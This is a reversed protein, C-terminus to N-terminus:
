NSNANSATVALIKREVYGTFTNYAESEDDWGFRQSLQELYNRMEDGSKSRNLRLVADAFDTANGQFLNRIIGFKENLPIATSLDELPTSNLKGALINKDPNTDERPAKEVKKKPVEVVEPESEAQKHLEEITAEPDLVPGKEEVVPEVKEKKPEQKPEELEREVAKTAKTQVATKGQVSEYMERLSALVLDKTLGSPNTEYEELQMSIANLREKLESM